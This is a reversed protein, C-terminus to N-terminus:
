LKSGKREPHRFFFVLNTLQNEDRYGFTVALRIAVSEVGGSLANLVTQPFATLSFEDALERSLYTPGEVEVEPAYELTERELDISRM